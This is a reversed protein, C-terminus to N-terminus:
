WRVWLEVDDLYVSTIWNEGDNKVGFHVKIRQGAYARLDVSRQQWAQEYDTWVTTQLAVDDSARLVCFYIRDADPWATVPWYYFTLTAEIASAPLELTQQTSSYSYVNGGAPIGLRMSRVGTRSRSYSYGAPYETQPIQWAEDSEFSPNVIWQTWRLTPTVSPTASVTPTQTPASAPPYNRLVVPLWLRRVPELAASNEGGPTGLQWSWDSGQDTDTSWADRGLTLGVPPGAPNTGGWGTGGPAAVVSTGWRVFDIGVGLEDTLGAAGSDQNGWPFTNGSGSYVDTASDLGYGEHLVVYAGAQLTLTPFSYVSALENYVDFVWLQWGTLEEAHGQPNYFEVWDPMGMGIENIIVHNMAWPTRTLTPTLTASPVVTTTTSPTATAPLTGTQTATPTTSSSATASPTQTPPTGTATPTATAPTGTVTPTGPAGTASPSATASASPSASPIATPSATPTSTPSPTATPSLTPTAGGGELAVKAVFVDSVGNHTLDPGASVPFTAETSNTFGTVYANGEGDVAIGLGEENVDGGIYGCYDLGDGSSRVRAVFADAGGGQSSSLGNGVPFSAADSYTSGTLYANGAGDVAIASGADDGSGGLYGCYALGSGAPAVKAVFADRGGNHQPDLAGLVPFSTQSSTTQGTLYAAGAGDVAISAASDSGSGGLYGCYLLGLGDARLKAVFVDYDGGNYSTDLPAAAPFLATSSTEGAVYAAGAGDVTIGRGQTIGDGGIYGCYVLSQGNAAVKAVFADRPGNVTLDPGVKVPFSDEASSTGGAVYAAGGSDVAIAHGEDDQNGGIYGCYTLDTGFANLRAVFADSGGNYTIQPGQTAPFTVQNSTTQGAIYANGGSDVAVGNAVDSGAGGLFTCYVLSSGDASVKVVFADLSGNQTTDFGPTVPFSVTSGTEGVIYVSGALDVAVAHGREDGSGGIYGCYVLVAPDIVLTKGRDYPDLQFGYTHVNSAAGAGSTTAFGQLAYSVPVRSRRGDTEQYASPADDQFDALPTLVQLRGARARVSAAGRYALRILAPDAGPHVVFQYKLRGEAASYVLDIGPWLDAYVLRAYTRLGTKWQDRPGRLYSIITPTADQGAPHVQPNAGLFDLKVAWARGDPSSLLFTLGDAAFFLTQENGQVYYAVRADVQGRNEIFFLRNPALQELAPAPAGAATWSRAPALTSSGASVPALTLSVILAWAVVLIRTRRCM